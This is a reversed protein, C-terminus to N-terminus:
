HLRATRMFLEYFIEDVRSLKWYCDVNEKDYQHNEIYQIYYSPIIIMREHQKVNMQITKTKAKM